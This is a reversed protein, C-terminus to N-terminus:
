GHSSVEMRRNEDADMDPREAPGTDEPPASFLAERDVAITRQGERIRGQVALRGDRLIGYEDAMEEAEEPYQTTLLVAAGWERAFMRIFRRAMGRTEPDLAATPEDLLIVEPKRLLCRALELRRRTGGSLARVPSKRRRSLGTASLVEDIAKAREARPIGYLSAFFDLNEAATLDPDSTPMQPLYTVAHRVADPQRAVNVGHVLVTGSDPKLLGALIHLLTTKGSGNAGLLAFVSGAQVQMGLGRLVSTRGFRKELNHISIAAM